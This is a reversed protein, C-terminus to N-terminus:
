VEQTVNIWLRLDRYPVNKESDKFLLFQLKMNNGEVSPSIELPEEFTTNDALRIHQMNEPLPLSQNELRAEMTYDVTRHEKNVIGIIYTGSEGKIYDTKYNNAMREPGLMYFKTFSEKEQPMM